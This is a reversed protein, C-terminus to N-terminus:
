KGLSKGAEVELTSPDFAVFDPGGKNKKKKSHKIKFVARLAAPLSCQPSLVPPTHGRVWDWLEAVLSFRVASVFSVLWERFWVQRYEPRPVPPGYWRAFM